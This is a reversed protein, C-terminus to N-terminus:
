KLLTYAKPCVPTLSPLENHDPKAFPGSGPTHDPRRVHNISQNTEWTEVSWINDEYDLGADDVHLRTPSGGSGSWEIKADHETQWCGRFRFRNLQVRTFFELSRRVLDIAGRSWPAGCTAGWRVVAGVLIFPSVSLVFARHVRVIMWYNTDREM